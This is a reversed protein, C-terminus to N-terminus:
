CGNWPSWASGRLRQEKGHGLAERLSVRGHWIEARDMTTGGQLGAGGERGGRGQGRRQVGGGIFLRDADAQDTATAAAGAGRVIHEMGRGIDNDGGNAVGELTLGLTALAAEVADALIVGAELFQAVLDVKGVIADEPAEVGVLLDDVAGIHVIDDQGRRGAEAREVDGLRDVGALMHEGLLGDTDVAGADAGHELGEVLGVLLLESGGGAGLAAVL